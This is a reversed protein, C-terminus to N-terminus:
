NNLMEVLSNNEEIVLDMIIEKYKLGTHNNAKIMYNNLIESVINKYNNHNKIILIPTETENKLDHDIDGIDKKIFVLARHIRSLDVVEKIEIDDYGMEILPLELFIDMDMSKCDYCQTTFRIIEQIDKSSKIKGNYILEPIAICLLKNYYKSLAEQQKENLKDKLLLSNIRLLEIIYLGKEMKDMKEDLIDDLLNIMADIIISPRLVKQPYDQIITRSVNTRLVKRGEKWKGLM